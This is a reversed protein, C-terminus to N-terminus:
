GPHYGHTFCRRSRLFLYWGVGFFGVSMLQYHTLAVGSMLVTIYSQEYYRVFEVLFRCTAHLVLFLGFVQGSGLRKEGVALLIGFIALSYLSSYLQTPHLPLDPFQQGAFSDQPFTMAWPLHSVKGFCCGNFFCGIRTFFEGLAISPVLADAVKLFSEHQARVYVFSVVIALLVGGLMSLGGEWMTMTRFSDSAYHSLNELIYLARSGIISALIIGLFVNIILRPELGVKKARHHAVVM